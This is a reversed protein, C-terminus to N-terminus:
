YRNLHPNHFSLGSVMIGGFYVYNDMGLDSRLKWM